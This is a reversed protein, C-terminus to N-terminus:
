MGLEALVAADKDTYPDSKLLEQFRDKNWVQLYTLYGMVAVEGDIQAAERLLPHISVRGQKDMSSVQGYYAANRLFKVKEPLLKPPELLKAEIEEWEEMPYILANKGTVSTVFMQLGYLEEIRKRLATPLKIRGQADVKTPFNGRLM